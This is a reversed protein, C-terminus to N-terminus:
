SLLAPIDSLGTCAHHAFRAFDKQWAILDPIMCVQMDGNFGAQIGSPSDELVLCNQPRIGLRKAALLFIDPNPKSRVPDDGCVIVPFRDLGCAQLSVSIRQMASSSGLAFPIGRRALDDLLEHAGPKADLHGERVKEAYFQRTLAWFHAADFPGDIHSAFIRNSSDATEGLTQLLVSYDMPIGMAEFACHDCELALKESDILLGDMDFLVASVPRIPIGGHLFSM